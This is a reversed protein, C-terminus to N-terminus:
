LPSPSIPQGGVNICVICIVGGSRAVRSEFAIAIAKLEIVWDLGTFEMESRLSSSYIDKM